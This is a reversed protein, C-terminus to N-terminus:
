ERSGSAVCTQDKGAEAPMATSARPRNARTREDQEITRVVGGSLTAFGGPEERIGRKSPGASRSRARTRGHHVLRNWLSMAARILLLMLLGTCSAVLLQLLVWTSDSM